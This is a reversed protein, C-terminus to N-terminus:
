EQQYDKKELRTKKPTELNQIALNNDFIGLFKKVCAM